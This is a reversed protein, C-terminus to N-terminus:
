RRPQLRSPRALRQRRASAALERLYRRRESHEIERKRTGSVAASVGKMNQQRRSGDKLGCRRM